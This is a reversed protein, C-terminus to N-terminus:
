SVDAGVVGRKGQLPRRRPQRASRGWLGEEEPQRGPGRRRSPCTWRAGSRQKRTPSGPLAEFVGADSWQRLRNHVTSWADFEQPMERWQGGTRTLDKM